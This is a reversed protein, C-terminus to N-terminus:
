LTLLWGFHYSNLQNMSLKLNWALIRFTSTTQLIFLVEEMTPIASAWFCELSFRTHLLDMCKTLWLDWVDVLMSLYALQDDNQLRSSDWVEEKMKMIWLLSPLITIKFNIYNLSTCVKCLHISPWWRRDSWGRSRKLRHILRLVWIM